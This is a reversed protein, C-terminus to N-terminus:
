CNRSSFNNRLLDLINYVAIAYAVEVNLSTKTGYMPIKIVEDAM